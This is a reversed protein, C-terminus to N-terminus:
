VASKAALVVLLASTLAEPSGHFTELEEPGMVVELRGSLQLVIAPLHEGMVARVERPADDRHFARFPVGLSTSCSRWEEKVTFTGHTIDCLACHRVGLRAGIWYAAEGMFTADADYVGFFADAPDLAAVPHRHPVLALLGAIMLAWAPRTTLASEYDAWVLSCLGSVFMTGAIIVRLVTGVRYLALVAMTVALTLYAAAMGSFHFRLSHSDGMALRQLDVLHPAETVAVYSCLATAVVHSPSLTEPRWSVDRPWLPLLTVLPMWSLSGILDGSWLGVAMMSISSALAIRWAGARQRGFTFLLVPVAWLPLYQVAGVINHIRHPIEDDRVLGMVPYPGVAVLMVGGIGLGWVFRLRAANVM